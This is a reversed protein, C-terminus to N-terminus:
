FVKGIINVSVNALFCCNETEFHNEVNHGLLYLGATHSTNVHNHHEARMGRPESTMLNRSLYVVRTCTHTAAALYPSRLILSHTHTSLLAQIPLSDALQVSKNGSLVLKSIPSCSSHILRCGSCQHQKLTGASRLHKRHPLQVVTTDVAAALRVM